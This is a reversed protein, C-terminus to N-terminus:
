IRDPRTRLLLSAIPKLWQPRYAILMAISFACVTLLLPWLLAAFAGGDRIICPVLAIFVLTWGSSRVLTKSPASGKASTVTRWHKDQSLALFAFGVLSLTAAISLCAIGAVSNM